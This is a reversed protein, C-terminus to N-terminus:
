WTKRLMLKQFFILILTDIDFGNKRTTYFDIM